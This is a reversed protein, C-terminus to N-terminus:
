LAIASGFESRRADVPSSKTWLSTTQGPPPSGSRIPKADHARDLTRGVRTHNGCCPLVADVAADVYASGAAFGTDLCLELPPPPLRRKGVDEYRVVSREGLLLPHPDHKKAARWASAKMSQRSERVVTQLTEPRVVEGDHDRATRGVRPSTL